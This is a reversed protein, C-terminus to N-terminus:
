SSGGGGDNNALNLAQTLSRADGLETLAPAEWEQEGRTQEAHLQSEHTRDDSTM